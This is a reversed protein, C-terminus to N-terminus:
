PTPVIAPGVLTSGPGNPGAITPADKLLFKTPPPIGVTSSRGDSRGEHGVAKNDSVGIKSAAYANFPSPGVPTQALLTLPLNKFVHTHPQAITLVGAGATNLDVTGANIQLTVATEKTLSGSVTLPPIIVTISGQMNSRSISWGSGPAGAPSVGGPAAPGKAVIQTSETVQYEIPATVHNVFMEGEVYAGGGIIVNKSVGLTSDVVVQGGIKNRLNLTDADITVLSGNIAIQGDQSGLTILDGRVETTGSAIKLNGLTRLQMGGSGADVSFKNMAHITYNGGPMDPVYLEAFAPFNYPRAKFTGTPLDPSISQIGNLGDTLIGAIDSVYAKATNRKIGVTVVKHKTIFEFSNGGFGMEKEQESLPNVVSALQAALKAPDTIGTLTSYIDSWISTAKTSFNGVKLFHDGNIINDSTRGVYLNNHGKVTEFKDALTLLQFNKPNFLATFYNNMEHYGGGFHTVKYVERDTTNIFEIAAARQNIVMKNRYTLHDNTAGQSANKDKNEFSDPYDPYASGAQYISSFDNQGFAAAFYVPVLPSGDRFFVWVHAGVNPVSFIGKAANSYTSPKYLDSYQNFNQSNIKATNGFADSVPHSEFYSGPKGGKNEPDISTASSSNAYNSNPLGYVLPADSVSNVDAYANYYGPTSAGMIPSCQEAWPLQAKLDPLIQSLNEGNPTGPFSFTQDQKLQNWKNYVITSVHPVWVKVRGRHDPDDNQVVIGVYISNFQETM